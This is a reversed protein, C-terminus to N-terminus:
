TNSSIPNTIIAEILQTITTKQEKDLSSEELWQKIFIFEWETKAKSMGLLSHLYKIKKVADEKECIKFICQFFTELIQTATKDFQHSKLLSKAEELQNSIVKAEVFRLIVQPNSVNNTDFFTSGIIQQIIALIKTQQEPKLPNTLFWEKIDNFMWSIGIKESELLDKLAMEQATCDQELGILASSQIFLHILQDGKRTYDELELFSLLYLAEDFRKKLISDFPYDQYFNPKSIELAKNFDAKAKELEEMKKYVLGRHVYYELQEKKAIIKSYFDIAKPFESPHHRYANALKRQQQYQHFGAKDFEVAKFWDAIANDTDELDNYADGRIIHFRFDNPYHILAETCMEISKQYEGAKSHKQSQVIYEGHLHKEIVPIEFDPNLIDSLKPLNQPDLNELAHCIREEDVEINLDTLTHKINYTVISKIESKYSKLTKDKLRQFTRGNCFDKLWYTFFADIQAANNGDLYDSIILSGGQQGSLSGYKRAALLPLTYETIGWHQIVLQIHESQYVEHDMDNQHLFDIYRQIYQQDTLALAVIPYTLAVAEDDIWPVPNFTLALELFALVKSHLEPYRKCVEIFFALESLISCGAEELFIDNFDEAKFEFAKFTENKDLSGYTFKKGYFDDHKIQKYYNLVETLVLKVQEKDELNVTIKLQEFNIIQNDEM